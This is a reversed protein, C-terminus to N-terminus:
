DQSRLSNLDNLIDARRRQRYAYAAVEDSGADDNQYYERDQRDIFSLQSFLLEAEPQYQAPMAHLVSDHVMATLGRNVPVRHLSEYRLLRSQKHVTIVILPPDSREARWSPVSHVVAPPFDIVMADRPSEDECLEWGNESLRARRSQQQLPSDEAVITLHRMIKKARLTYSSEQEPFL